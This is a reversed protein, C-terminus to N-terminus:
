CTEVSRSDERCERSYGDLSPLLHFIIDEEGDGGAEEFLSLPSSDM